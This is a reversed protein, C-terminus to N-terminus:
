LKTRKQINNIKREYRLNEEPEWTMAKSGFWKVKYYTEDETVKM